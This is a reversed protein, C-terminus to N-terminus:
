ITSLFEQIARRVDEEFGPEASLLATIFTQSVKGQSATGTSTADSYDIGFHKLLFARDSSSAERIYLEEDISILSQRSGPLSCIHLRDANSVAVNREYLYSLLWVAETSVSENLRQMRIDEPDVGLQVLFDVVIDSHIKTAEEFSRFSVQSEGFVSKLNAFLKQYRAATGMIHITKAEELTLGNGKVNEQIASNVYSVPNRTYILVSVDHVHPVLDTVFRKLKSLGDEQLMCGDEGSFIVTSGHISQMEMALRSTQNQVRKSIADRDLEERRNAHYREPHESFASIFFGSCNSSLTSPVIIGSRSLIARNEPSSITGQISSSGTKHIGLHLLVQNTSIFKSM